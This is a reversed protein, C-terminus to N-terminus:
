GALLPGVVAWVKAADDGVQQILKVVEAARVSSLRAAIPRV